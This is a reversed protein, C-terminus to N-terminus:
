ALVERALTVVDLVRVRLRTVHRNALSLLRDDSTVFVDVGGSEAFAIHLADFNRFGFAM